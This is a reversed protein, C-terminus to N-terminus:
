RRLAPATSSKTNTRPHDQIAQAMGRMLNELAEALGGAARAKDALNNCAKALESWSMHTVQLREICDTFHKIDTELANKTVRSLKSNSFSGLYDGSPKGIEDLKCQAFTKASAVDPTVFTLQLNARRHSHREEAMMLAAYKLLQESSTPADIKLEVGLLTHPSAFFGDQQTATNDTFGPFRTAIERGLREFKGQDHIKAPTLFIESMASSPTISFCIDFIHNLPVELRKLRTFNESAKEPRTYISGGPRIRSRPISVTEPSETRLAKSVSKLGLLSPEWYLEEIADWYAKSWSM